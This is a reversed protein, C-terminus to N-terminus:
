YVWYHVEIPYVVDIRSEVLLKIIIDHSYM